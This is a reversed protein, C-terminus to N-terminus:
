TWLRGWFLCCMRDEPRNGFMHPVAKLSADEKSSLKIQKNSSIVLALVSFASPNPVVKFTEEKGGCFAWAKRERLCQCCFAKM